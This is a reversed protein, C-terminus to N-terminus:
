ENLFDKSFLYKSKAEDSLADFWDEKTVYMEGNLWWQKKGDYNYQLITGDKKVVYVYSFQFHFPLHDYGWCTPDSPEEYFEFMKSICKIGGNAIGYDVNKVIDEYSFKILNPIMREPYGDYHCYCGVYDGNEKEYGVCSKTSM